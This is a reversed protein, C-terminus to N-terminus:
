GLPFVKDGIQFTCSSRHLDVYSKQRDSAKKLSLKIVQMQRDMEELANKAVPVPLNPDTFRYPVLFDQGYLAKFPSM